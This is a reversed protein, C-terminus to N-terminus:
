FEHTMSWFKRLKKPLRLILPLDPFSNKIADSRWKESLKMRDNGTSTLARARSGLQTWAGIMTVYLDAKKKKKGHFEHPIGAPM